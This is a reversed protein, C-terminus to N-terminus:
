QFKELSNSILMLNQTNKLGVWQMKLNKKCFFIIV